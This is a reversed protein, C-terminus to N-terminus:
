PVVNTAHDGSHATILFRLFQQAFAELNLRVSGAKMTVQHYEVNKLVTWLLGRGIRLQFRFSEPAIVGDIECQLRLASSRRDVGCEHIKNGLIRADPCKLNSHEVSKSLFGVFHELPEIG